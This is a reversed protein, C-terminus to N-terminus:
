LAGFYFLVGFGALETRWNGGRRRINVALGSLEDRFVFDRWSM